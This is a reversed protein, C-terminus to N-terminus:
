QSDDAKLPRLPGAPLSGGARASLYSWLEPYYRAVEPNEGWPRMDTFSGAYGDDLAAYFRRRDLQAVRHLLNPAFTSGVGERGHCATCHREFVRWGIYTAPDTACVREPPDLREPCEIRYAPSTGAGRLSPQQAASMSALLMFGIGAGAGAGFLPKVANRAAARM